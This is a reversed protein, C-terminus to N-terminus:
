SLVKPPRDFREDFAIRPATVGQPLAPASPQVTHMGFFAVGFWPALVGEGAHHHGLVRGEDADHHHGTSNTHHDEHEDADVHEIAPGALANVAHETGFVHDIQDVVVASSQVCLVLAQAVCLVAVLRKMFAHGRGFM